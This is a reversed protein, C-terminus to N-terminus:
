FKYTLSLRNAVQNNLGSIVNPGDFFLGENIAADLLFSGFHLGIGFYLKYDSSRTTTERKAGTHPKYTDKTAQFVQAAGVRGTLWSNIQSELGLYLGPLTTVQTTSDYADKVSQKLSSLGFVELGMVLLNNNDIQHNLGVGLGLDFTKYDVKGTDPPAPLLIGRDATTSSFKLNVLPVIKTKEGYFMRGSVGFAIGNWKDEYWKHDTNYHSKRSIGPMEALLGLDMVENSIGAGLAFYHASEKELTDSKYSDLSLALRLGLDFQSMKKGYFLDTTHTLEVQSVINGPLVFGTPRNLYIGFVSNDNIPYHVGVSYTSNNNKSRLEGVVQGTYMSIAGPYFFINSNDKTYFGVGGMSVVRTETASLNVFAVAVFLAILAITVSVKSFTKM